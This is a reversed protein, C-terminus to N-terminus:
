SHQDFMNGRNGFSTHEIAAAIKQRLNFKKAIIPRVDDAGVLTELFPLLSILASDSRDEFWSEIPIGNDVQFGFAQPSNDIIAVQALDRGLVTLDKLYNGEVFVCSERYVRHRILKRKPDLVNLLQEAYISQSATFVIIEFMDAVRDMFLQLYPRCRVYVTHERLNFYVPFTFDADDCHELTSHVLTEDLDLVLTIPPCRRTQKPLLMPRFSSVVESLHPLNKIFLYPDFDDLDDEEDPVRSEQNTEDNCELSKTQQMALFVSAGVSNLLGEEISESDHRHDHSKNEDVFPWEIINQNVDLTAQSGVLENEHLSGPSRSPTQVLERVDTSLRAVDGDQQSGARSTDKSSKKHEEHTSGNGNRDDAMYNKQALLGGEEVINTSITLTGGAADAPIHYVPSFITEVVPPSIKPICVKREICPRDITSFALRLDRCVDEALEVSDNLTKVGKGPVNERKASFIGTSVHVIRRKQTSTILEAAKRDKAQLDHHFKKRRRNSSLCAQDGNSIRTSSKRSKTKM